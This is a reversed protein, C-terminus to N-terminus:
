KWASGLHSLVCDLRIRDDAMQAYSMWFNGSQGWSAGWSNRIKFGGLSGDKMKETDSYDFILVEHGGLLSEKHFNPTPMLGDSGIHEFSEYVSFGLMCPYESALCSKIDQVNYLFHYAGGKYNVADQIQEVSPQTNFDGAIYPDQSELCVGFRNMAKAVSRGTSGTDGQGLSGDIKRAMYYLFAPSFDWKVGVSKSKFKNYLYNLNGTGAHGTCSGEDKQDRVHGLYQENWSRSPLPQTTSSILHFLGLDRHDPPNKLYGFRRGNKLPLEKTPM